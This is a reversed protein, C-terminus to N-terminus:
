RGGYRWSRVHYCKGDNGWAYGHGSLYMGRNGPTCTNPSTSFSTGTGEFHGILRGPHGSMRRSAMYQAKEFCAADDIRGQGAFGSSEVAAQREHFTQCKNCWYQDAHASGAFLALVTGVSFLVQRM